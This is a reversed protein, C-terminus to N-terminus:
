YAELNVNFGYHRFIAKAQKSSGIFAILKAADASSQGALTLGIPYIIPQYSHMPLEGLLAVKHSIKADTAYVIGAACEGREVLSLAARVDATGVMRSKLAAYWGMRTLSQKAYIGAPVSETQGVCLNGKFAGALNFGSQPQYRFPQNNPSILVLRNRLLPRISRADIQNKKVLYNMWQEDASFFIDAPAGAEIQKALQASSAFVNTIKIHPNQRQYQATIDNMANTLSAAAYIKVSQASAVTACSLLLAALSLNIQYPPQRTQM